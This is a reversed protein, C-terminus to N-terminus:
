AAPGFVRHRRPALQRGRGRRSQKPDAPDPRPSWLLDNALEFVRARDWGFAGPGEVGRDRLAKRATASELGSRVILEAFSMHAAAIRTIAGAPLLWRSHEAQGTRLTELEGARKLAHNLIDVADCQSYLPESRAPPLRWILRATDTSVLIDRTNKGGDRLAFPLNRDLLRRFVEAWPKVGGGYGRLARHLEMPEDVTETPSAVSRLEAVLRDLDAQTVQPGGHTQVLWPHDDSELVAAAVLQDAAYPAIALRLGIATSTLRTRRVEALREVEAQDLNYLVRGNSMAYRIQLTGADRGAAVKTETTGLLRAAPKVLVNRTGAEGGAILDRLRELAGRVSPLVTDRDDGRLAGSLRRTFRGERRKTEDRKANWLVDFVSAPFGPMLAWAQAMAAALKRHHEMNVRADLWHPLEADILGALTCVLDLLPGRSIGELTPSIQARAANAADADVGALAHLAALHDRLEPDVLEAPQATLDSGCRDCRRMDGAFRWAQVTGCSVCADQLYEWSEPCFPLIRLMWASLHDRTRALTAPAFRRKDTVLAIRRVAAGNFSVFGDFRAPHLMRGFVAAPEAGLVNALDPASGTRSLAAFPTDKYGNGVARLLTYCSPLMNEHATRVAWGLLSGGGVPPQPWMVQGPPRLRM